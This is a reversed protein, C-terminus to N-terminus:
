ANMELSKFLGKIDADNWGYDSLEQVHDDPRIVDMKDDSNIRIALGHLAGIPKTLVTIPDLSFGIEASRVSILFATISDGGHEVITKEDDLMNINLTSRVISEIDIDAQNERTTKSSRRVLLGRDIKGNHAKPIESVFYYDTPLMFSPVSEGLNRRISDASILNNKEVVMWAALRKVGNGIEYPVVCCETLGSCELLASEIDRIEVRKGGIKIIYESRGILKLEGSEKVLTVRDGTDFLRVGDKEVLRESTLVSNRKYGSLMGIGHVYLRGEDGPKVPVLNEDLVIVSLDGDKGIPVFDKGEDSIECRHISIYPAETLGFVNYFTALPLVSIFKKYQRGLFSDSTCIVQRLSSLSKDGDKTAIIAEILLPVTGITTVGYRDIVATHESADAHSGIPLIAAGCGAVIPWFIERLLNTVGLTTRMLQIDNAHLPIAKQLWQQGSIIAEHSLEIGKPAATSGTTFFSFATAGTRDVSSQLHVGVDPTNTLPLWEDKNDKAIAIDSVVFNPQSVKAVLQARSTPEDIDIPVIEAGIKLLAFLAAIAQASRGGMFLIVHGARVGSHLYFAAKRDAEEKIKQYSYQEDGEYLYISLSSKQVREDLLNYLNM